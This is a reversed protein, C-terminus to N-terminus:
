ARGSAGSSNASRRPTTPSAGDKALRAVDAGQRRAMEGIRDAFFGNSLLAFKQGPEAFNAVAAEM